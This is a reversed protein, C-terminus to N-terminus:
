DKTWLVNVIFADQRTLRTGHQKNITAALETLIEQKKSTPLVPKQTNFKAAVVYNTYLPQSRVMFLVTMELTFDYTKNFM